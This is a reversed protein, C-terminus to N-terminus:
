FWHNINWTLLRMRQSAAASGRGGSGEVTRGGEQQSDPGEQRCVLGCDGEFAWARVIKGAKQRIEGLQIFPGPATLATEEFFERRAAELPDEDAGIEGKPITWAGEDKNQWYPGGPHVLFVEPKGERFRYM